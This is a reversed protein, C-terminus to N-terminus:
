PADRLVSPDQTAVRKTAMSCKKSAFSGEQTNYHSFQQIHLCHQKLCITEEQLRELSKFLQNM